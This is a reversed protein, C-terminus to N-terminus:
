AYLRASAHPLQGPAAELTLKGSADGTVPRRGCAAAFAAAGVRGVGPRGGSHLGRPPQGTVLKLVGAAVPLLPQERSWVM